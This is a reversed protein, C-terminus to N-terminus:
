VEVRGGEVPTEQVVDGRVTGKGAMKQSGGIGGESGVGLLDLFHAELAGFLSNQSLRDQPNNFTHGNHPRHDLHKITRSKYPNNILSIM